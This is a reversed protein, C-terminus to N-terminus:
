STSVVYFCFFVIGDRCNIVYCDTGSNRKTYTDYRVNKEKYM